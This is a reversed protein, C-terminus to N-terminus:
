FIQIVHSKAACSNRFDYGHLDLPPRLPGDVHPTLEEAEISYLPGELPVRRLQQLLVPQAGVSSYQGPVSLLRIKLKEWFIVSFLGTPVASGGRLNLPECEFRRWGTGGSFNGFIVLFLKM